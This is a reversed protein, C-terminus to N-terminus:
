RSAAARGARSMQREVVASLPVIAFDRRRAEPLWEDIAEITEVFPHGIAVASGNRRAADELLALQRRIEMPDLSDGPQEKHDLFIDRTTYPLGVRAAEVAGVSTGSTKSDLFLMQRKALERMVIRMGEPSGTFRSGMHNNIGVIGFEFRNLNYDLRSAIEELSLSMSLFNPGPDAADSYPEMPIHAMLEHGARRARGAQEALDPAFPLFAVTLQAQIGIVRASVPVDVGMDDIVLAIIPRNPPTRAPVSYRRWAPAGGDSPVAAADLPDGALTEPQMGSGAGDSADAPTLGAPSAEGAPQPGTADGPQPRAADTAQPRSAAPGLAVSGVEAAAATGDGVVSGLEGDSLVERLAAVGARASETGAQRLGLSDALLWLGTVAVLAAAAWTAAAQLVRMRAAGRRARRRGLERATDHITRKTGPDLAEAIMVLESLVDKRARQRAAHGASHIERALSREFRRDSPTELGVLEDSELAIECSIEPAASTARAAPTAGFPLEPQEPSPWWHPLSEDLDDSLAQGAATWPLRGPVSPAALEPFLEGQRLTGDAPLIQDLDRALSVALVAQRRSRELAARATAEEEAARRYADLRRRAALAAHRARSRASRELKEGHARLEHARAEAWERQDRLRDATEVTERVQGVLSVAAAEWRAHVTELAAIPDDAGPKASAEPASAPGPVPLAERDGRLLVAKASGRARAAADSSGMTELTTEAHRRREVAARWDAEAQRARALAVQELAQLNQLLGEDASAQAKADQSTTDTEQM